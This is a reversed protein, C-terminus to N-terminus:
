RFDSVRFNESRCRGGPWVAGCRRACHLSIARFSHQLASWDLDVASFSIRCSPCLLANSATTAQQAQAERKRGRPQGSARRGSRRAGAGGRGGSATARVCPERETRQPDCRMATRGDTCFCCLLTQVAASWRAGRERGREEEGDDCQAKPRWLRRRRQQQRRQERQEDAQRAM